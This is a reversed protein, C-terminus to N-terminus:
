EKCFDALFMIDETDLPLGSGFGTNGLKQWKKTFSMGSITGKFYIKKDEGFAWKWSGLAEGTQSHKKAFTADDVIKIMKVM